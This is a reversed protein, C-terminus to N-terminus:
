PPLQSKADDPFKRFLDKLHDLPAALLGTVTEFPPKDPGSPHSRTPIFMKTRGFSKSMNESDNEGLAKELAPLDDREEEKIHASLNTWLAELTKSFNPDEPKLDQFQFLYDKISLHEKRDKDAMEKGNPLLREFAPYVVLEEGISHRALEWTFQNRWQTKEDVSKANKINNYFQELEKHDHIISDSIKVMTVATASFLWNQPIIKYIKRAFSPASRLSRIVSSMELYFNM